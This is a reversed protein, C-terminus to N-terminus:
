LASSKRLLSSCICLSSFFMRSMSNAWRLPRCCRCPSSSNRQRFHSSYAQMDDSMRVTSLICWTTISRSKRSLCLSLGLGFGSWKPPLTKGLEELRCRGDRSERLWGTVDLDLKDIKVDTQITTQRDVVSVRSCKTFTVSVFYVDSVTADSRKCACTM